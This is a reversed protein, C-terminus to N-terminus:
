RESKLRKLCNVLKEKNIRCDHEARSARCHASVYSYGLEMLFREYAEHFLVFYREDYSVIDAEIWVEGKPIFNYVLDHGGEVFDVDFIDRVLKGNVIWVDLGVDKTLQHWMNLKVLYANANIGLRPKTSVDSRRRERREVEDAAKLADDYSEGESMLRNEVLMHDIFFVHESPDTNEDIWFETEPIYRQQYHQGFNTFEEDINKRVYSGDVLVVMFNGREDHNRDVYLKNYDIM